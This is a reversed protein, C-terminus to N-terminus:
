DPAYAPEFRYLPELVEDLRRLPGHRRRPMNSKRKSPLTRLFSSKALAGSGQAIAKREQAM